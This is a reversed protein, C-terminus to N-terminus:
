GLTRRDIHIVEPQLINKLNGPAEGTFCLSRGMPGNGNGEGNGDGNGNGLNGLVENHM